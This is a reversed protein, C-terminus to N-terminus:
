DSLFNKNGEVLAYDFTLEKGISINQRAVLTWAGRMWVNPKCSHNMFYTDSDGREEITYLDDDLQMVLRGQERAQEAEEKTGSVGGWVVVIDGDNFQAEAYM